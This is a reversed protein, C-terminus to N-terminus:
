FVTSILFFLILTKCGILFFIFIDNIDLDFRFYKDLWIFSYFSLCIYFYLTSVFVIFIISTFICIYFISINLLGYLIFLEVYFLLMFPFDINFMFLFVLINSFFSFGFFSLMILFIRIGYNEYFVGVIFFMFCASLVHAVNCLVVVGTFIVDNNWLLILGACTHIVSWHAIIKKYDCLFIVNYSILLLGILIFINIFHMAWISYINLSLFLFKYLGFFGIKLILSALLISMETTVEVHMEPLWTHLPWIPYKIAFVVFLLFWIFFGLFISDFYFLDAFHTLSFVNFHLIFIICVIICLVSSFSSFFVFMYIAFIFRNSFTFFFSCFFIPVFLSEFFIIFLIFDDVIIVFFICFYIIIFNIILIFM